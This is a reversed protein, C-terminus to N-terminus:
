SKEPKEDPAERWLHLDPLRVFGQDFDIESVDAETFPVFLTAASGTLRVELLDGAGFDQVAVIEGIRADGTEIVALGILDEVYFEDEEPAAFRARPVYVDTGRLGDWHEKQFREEATVIFHDNAARASVPTLLVRGGADTLPGYTFLDAPDDTFSTVRVDGRVGHAGKLRGALVLKSPPADTMRASLARRPSQFTRSQACANKLLFARRRVTQEGFRAM